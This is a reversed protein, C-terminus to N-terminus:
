WVEKGGGFVATLVKAPDDTEEVNPVKSGGISGFGPPVYFVFDLPPATGGQVDAVYRQAGNPAPELLVEGSYRGQNQTLDAYRLAHGYLGTAGVGLPFGGGYLMVGVQMYSALQFSPWKGQGWTLTPLFADQGELGLQSMTYAALCAPGFFFYKMIDHGDSNWAPNSLKLLRANLLFSGHHFGYRERGELSVRHGMLALVPNVMGNKGFEEYTVVGDDDEDFADLFEKKLSTGALRDVAELYTISTLQLDWPVKFIDYYLTQTVIDSFAGDRVTGLRGEVSALADGSVADRGVVYYGSGGLGREAAYRVCRDRSIPCDYGTDTVINGGDVRPLPVRQPFCGGYGDEMGVRHAEDMATNSFLYRACFLDTAVADLGAVVLGEAERTGPRTGTHDLNIAEIADVVHLMPVDQSSVATLVDAITGLIGASEKVVYRGESDRKPIGTAPDVEASHIAHPIGSKLGPVEDRPTAYKWHFSGDSEVQMPYLGIGLNKIAATVLTIQHVKLRPVNVLVCGPYAEMDDADSPDGGVVAKHLTITSFNAGHPVAVDRGKTPDDYIRNLDYVMLRDGALGPPLYTGAVSEEHGRMPDDTHAPDHAGALYKRVFYFGWGGYFGGSRGEIVAETTVKKGEPHMMTFLGAVSSTTTAAEGICMRHYSIGLRDHLWRMLAAVLAWETCATSGHGPGHSQPDIAHATVINPKLLLKRGGEIRAQLDIGFGTEEDLAALAPDLNEYTYDIKAKISRWAEADANDIYRRLLEPLGAYSRGADMHVVGLPAGTSDTARTGIATDVPTGKTSGM